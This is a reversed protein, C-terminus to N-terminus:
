AWPMATNMCCYPSCTWRATPMLARRQWGGTPIPLPCSNATTPLRPTSSGGNGAANTDLTIANGKTQGVAAGALDAVNVTISSDTSAGVNLSSMLGSMDAVKADLQALSLWASLSDSTLTDPTSSTLSVHEVSTITSNGNSDLSSSIKWFPGSTCIEADGDNNVPHDVVKFYYVEKVRKGGIDVLMTVSDNGLYGQEPLYVYLPNNAPDTPGSDSSFLSGRDAETVLRLVGHKPNQLVTVTATGDIKQHAYLNFYIQAQIKPSITNTLNPAVGPMNGIPDCVGIAHETVSTGQAQSAQAIMVPVEQPPVNPMDPIFM